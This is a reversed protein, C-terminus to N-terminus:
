TSVVKSANKLVTVADSPRNITEPPLKYNAEYILMKVKPGM